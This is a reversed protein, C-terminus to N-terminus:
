KRGALVDNRFQQLERDLMTLFEDVESETTMIKAASYALNLAAQCGAYFSRRCEIVQINPATKPIVQSQYTLWARSIETSVVAM